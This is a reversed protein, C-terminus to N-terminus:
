SRCTMTPSRRLPHSSSLPLHLFPDRLSSFLFDIHSIDNITAFSKCGVTKVLFCFICLCAVVAFLIPQICLEYLDRYFCFTVSKSNFFCCSTKYAQSKGNDGCFAPSFFLFISDVDDAFITVLQSLHMDASPPLSLPSYFRTRAHTYAYVRARTHTQMHTSTHVCTHKCMSQMDKCFRPSSDNSIKARPCM